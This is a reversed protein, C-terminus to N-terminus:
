PRAHRRSAVSRRNVSALQGLARDTLPRSVQASTATPSVSPPTAQARCLNSLVTFPSLPPMKTGRQAASQPNSACGRRFFPPQRGIEVIRTVDPQCRRMAGQRDPRQDPDEVEVVSAARDDRDKAASGEDTAPDDVNRQLGRVREAEPSFADSVYPDLRNSVLEL